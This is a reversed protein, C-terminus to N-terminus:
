LSDLAASTEARNSGGLAPAAPIANERPTGRLEQKTPHQGTEPDILQMSSDGGFTRDPGLNTTDLFGLKALDKCYALTLPETSTDPFLPQKGQDIAVLKYVGPNEGTPDILVRSQRIYHEVEDRQISRAELPGWTLTIGNYLGEHKSDTLRNMVLVRDNHDIKEDGEAM